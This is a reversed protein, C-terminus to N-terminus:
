SCLEPVVAQAFREFAEYAPSGAEIAREAHDFWDNFHYTIREVEYHEGEGDGIFEHNPTDGSCQVELWDGPGGTSLDIRFVTFSSVGLPMEYMRENAQDALEDPTNTLPSDIEGAEHLEAAEAVHDDSWNDAVAALQCLHNTRSELHAEIREECSDNRDSM